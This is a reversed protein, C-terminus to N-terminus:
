EAVDSPDAARTASTDGTSLELGMRVLTGSLVGGFRESLQRTDEHADLTFYRMVRFGGHEILRRLGEHLLWLNAWRRRVSPHLVRSDVECSQDGFTRGLAMGVVQGELLLVVSMMPDYANSASGNLLPMLLRPNGGLHQEHLRAVADLDAENLPVVRAGPPIRDRIRELLPSLVSLAQPIDIQYDWRRQCPVFGMAAWAKAAPSDTGSWDWARLSMISDSQAQEIARELLARGIGRRRFPEIVHLDVLGRQGSHQSEVGMAVAGVVRQPDGSAAVFLHTMAGSGTAGPLLMRCARREAAQPPRIVYDRQTPMAKPMM